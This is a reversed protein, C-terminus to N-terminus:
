LANFSLRMLIMPVALIEVIAFLSMQGFIYSRLIMSINLKDEKKVFNVGIFFVFIQLISYIMFPVIAQKM